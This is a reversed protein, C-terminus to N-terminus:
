IRKVVIKGRAGLTLHRKDLSVTCIQRLKKFVNGIMDESLKEHLNLEIMAQSKKITLQTSWCKVLALIIKVPKKFLSFFSGDYISKFTGCSTCRWSLIQNKSDATRKRFKLNLESGKKICNTKDCCRSSFILGLNRLKDFLKFEDTQELSM